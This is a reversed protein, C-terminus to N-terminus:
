KKIENLKKLSGIIAVPTGRDCFEFVEDMNENTLAICGDTWDAGQGGAGHIEILGGIDRKLGIVGNKKNTKFRKKDDENPYNILLAKYYKTKRKEKKAVIKYIGEPTAQDGQQHKNGMWNNGLEIAYVGKVTGNSYVICERSYKDVILAVANKEKSFKIASDAWQKWQPYNEFYTTLFSSAQSYCDNILLKAENLKTKAENLSGSQFAFRAEGLLLRGKRNKKKLQDIPLKDFKNQFEDCKLQLISLAKSIEKNLNRSNSGSKEIAKTSFVLSRVALDRTPKFDRFLFIKENESKWSIMASDYLEVSKRLLGLAYVEAKLNKAKTINNRAMKLEEIPPKDRKVTLYVVTGLLVILLAALFYKLPNISIKMGGKKLM